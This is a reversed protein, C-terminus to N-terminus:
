SLKKKDMAAHAARRVHLIRQLATLNAGVAVIAVGVLPINFLLSPGVIFYREVRTLIGVKAEYGLSQARARIYSVLVSGAAAFFVLMVALLDDLQLFYFLLAAHHGYMRRIAVHDILQDCLAFRFPLQARQIM